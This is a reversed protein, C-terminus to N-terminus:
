NKMVLQPLGYKSYSSKPLLWSICHINLLVEADAVTPGQYLLDRYLLDESQNHFTFDFKAPNKPFFKRFFRGIECFNRPLKQPLSWWFAIALFVASKTTIKLAFKALFRRKQASWVLAKLTKRVSTMMQEKLLFISWFHVLPLAKLMM